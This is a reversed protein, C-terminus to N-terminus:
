DGRNGLQRLFYGFIVFSFAVFITALYYVFLTTHLLEMVAGILALLFIM